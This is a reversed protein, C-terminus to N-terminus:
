VTDHLMKIRSVITTPVIWKIKGLMSHPTLAFDLCILRSDKSSTPSHNQQAPILWSNTGFILLTVVENLPSQKSEAIPTGTPWSIYILLTSESAPAHPRVLLHICNRQCGQLGAGDNQIPHPGCCCALPHWTPTPDCPLIQSFQLRAAANHIHQLLKTWVTGALLLTATTRAPSSWRMSWSNRQM